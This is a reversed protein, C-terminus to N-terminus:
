QITLSAVHVATIVRSRAQSGTDPNCVLSISGGTSVATLAITQSFAGLAPLNANGRSIPNNNELLDCSVLGGAGNSGLATTANVIYNGLPLSLRAVTTDVTAPLSLQALQTTGFGQSREAPDLKNTTVAGDALKNTTVGSDALKSTTVGKDALKRTTVARDALKNTTVAGNKIKASTVAKNQLQNSGITGAAYATGSFAAIMAIFAIVM